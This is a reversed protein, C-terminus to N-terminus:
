QTVGGKWSLTFDWGGVYVGSTYKFGRYIRLWNEWYRM